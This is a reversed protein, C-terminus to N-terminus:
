EGKKQIAIAMKNDGNHTVKNWINITIALLNEQQKRWGKKNLYEDTLPREKAIKRDHKM